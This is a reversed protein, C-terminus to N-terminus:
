QKCVILIMPEAILILQVACSLLLGIRKFKCEDACSIAMAVAVLLFLLAVIIIVVALTIYAAPLFANASARFLTVVFVILTALFSVWAATQIVPATVNSSETNIIFAVCGIITAVIFAAFSGDLFMNTLFFVIFTIGIM